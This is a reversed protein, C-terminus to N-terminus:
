RIVGNFEAWDLGGLAAWAPHVQGDEGRVWFVRTVLLSWLATVDLGKRRAWRWMVPAVWVAVLLCDDARHITLTAMGAAQLEIIRALEVGRRRRGQDALTDIGLSLSPQVSRSWGLRDHGVLGLAWTSLEVCLEPGDDALRVSKRALGPARFPYLTCPAPGAEIDALLKM